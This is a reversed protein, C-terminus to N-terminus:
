SRGRSPRIVHEPRPKREAPAQSYDGFPEDRRRV